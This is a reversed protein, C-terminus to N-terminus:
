DGEKDEISIRGSEIPAIFQLNRIIKIATEVKELTSFNMRYVTDDSVKIEVRTSYILIEM